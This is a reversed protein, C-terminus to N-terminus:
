FKQRRGYFLDDSWVSVKRAFSARKIGARILNHLLTPPHSFPCVKMCLGCDTGAIRWMRMCKEINFPWKEVGRIYEKQGTTIAASPCNEACKKCNECFDQVGFTIPNDSELPLDTTVAGLRVRPGFKPSILYNMRSLEGLGADVAVAPLILQYNSGSVHARASYGLSRIYHALSISVQSACIYKNASEWTIPLYPAQEVKSYDMEIAFAIVYKHSNKIPSGWPEPGRGVNSYLYMQNLGAIGVDDAGIFGALQKIHKTMEKTPLEIKNKSVPGDVQHMLLKEVKFMEIIEDAIEKEYFRSGPELLGPFKRLKNDIDKLWPRMSYYIEYKESGPIYDERAFMTDREDIRETIKGIKLPSTKGLPLYFLVGFLIILTNYLLLLYTPPDPWIIGATFIATFLLAFLLSVKVARPRKEIVSTISFLIFFLILIGNILFFAIRAIENLTM